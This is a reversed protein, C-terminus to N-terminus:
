MNKEKYDYTAYNKASPSSITDRGLSFVVPASQPTDPVPQPTLAPAPSSSAATPSSSALVVNIRPQGPPVTRQRKPRGATAPPPTPPTPALAAVLAMNQEVLKNILQTQTLILEELRAIAAVLTATSDPAPALSPPQRVVNAFSVAAHRPRPRPTIQTTSPLRPSPAPNAALRVKKVAASYSIGDTTRIRRIAIEELWVPCDPSTVPHQGGCAACLSPGVCNGEHSPASCKVCVKEKDCENEHHGYKFCLRCRLPMPIHARVSLRLGCSLLVFDPVAAPFSLLFRGSNSACNRTPLPRIACVQEGLEEKLDDVSCGMLDRAHITGKAYQPEKKSVAVSTEGVCISMPMEAVDAEFNVSIRGDALLTCSKVCGFGKLVRRLLLPPIKIGSPPSLM